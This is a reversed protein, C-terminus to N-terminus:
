ARRQSELYTRVQTFALGRHSLASVEEKSMLGFPRDHGEPVFITNYPLNPQLDGMPEKLITGRVEGLFLTENGKPSILLAATRFAATRKEEPVDKLQQLTHTRVQGAPAHDGAWRASHVGPAGGLADIFIGTDDAVCWASALRESLREHAYLAKKRANDEITTGDEVAEGAIGAEDLSYITITSGGFIDRIQKAKGPNRTALILQM